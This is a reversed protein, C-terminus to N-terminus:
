KERIHREVTYVGPEYDLKEAVDEGVHQMPCSWACTTDGAEHRIGRRPLNAPLAQRKPEGREAKACSGECRSM